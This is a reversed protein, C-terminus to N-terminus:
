FSTCRPGAKFAAKFHCYLILGPSPSLHKLGADSLWPCFPSQTGCGLCCVCGAEFFHTHTYTYIYIHVYVCICTCTYTYVCMYTYVYVCIYIYIVISFSLSLSLSLSLSFLSLQTNNFTYTTSCTSLHTPGQIQHLLLLVM